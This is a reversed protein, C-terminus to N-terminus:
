LFKRYGYIVYSNDIEDYEYCISHKQLIAVIKDSVSYQVVKPDLLRGINEYEKISGSIKFWEILAKNMFDFYEDGAITWYFKPVTDDFITKYMIPLRDIQRIEDFLEKWKTNNMYSTLQKQQIVDQIKDSQTKKNNYKGYEVENILNQM